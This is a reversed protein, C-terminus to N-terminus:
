KIEKVVIKHHCLKLPCGVGMCDSGDENKGLYQTEGWVAEVETGCNKCIGHYMKPLPLKGYKIIKM